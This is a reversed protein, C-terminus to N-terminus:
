SAIRLVLLSLVPFGISSSVTVIYELLMLKDLVRIGFVSVKQGLVIQTTPCRVWLMDRRRRAPIVWLSERM